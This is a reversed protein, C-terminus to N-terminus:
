VGSKSSNITRAAQVFYVSIIVESATSERQQEGPIGVFEEKSPGEERDIEVFHGGTAGFDPVQGVTISGGNGPVAGTGSGSGTPASKTGRAPGLNRM